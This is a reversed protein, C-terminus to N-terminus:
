NSGGAGEKEKRPCEAIRHESSGCKFCKTAKKWCTEATHGAKGCYGCHRVLQRGHPAVGTARKGESAEGVQSREALEGQSRAEKPLGEEGVGQGFKPPPISQEGPDSENGSVRKRKAQVNKVLAKASELRQAMEIVDGFTEIRTMALGEQLDVNLGHIFKRIRRQETAVMEPAYRALRTFQTEYEAVTQTGQRCRSFAEERREQVISPLYKSNFERVFNAWTRPVMEDEWKAQIMHWWARAPGEFQFSAFAIQRAETYDLTAFIDSMREMWM